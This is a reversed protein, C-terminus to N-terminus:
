KWSAIEIDMEKKIDEWDECEGNAIQQEAIQIKELILSEEKRTLDM